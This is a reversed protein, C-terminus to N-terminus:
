KLSNYFDESSMKGKFNDFYFYVTNNNEIIHTRFRDNDLVNNELYEIEDNSLDWNINLKIEDNESISKKLPIIYIYPRPPMAFNSILCSMILKNHNLVPTINVLYEISTALIVERSFIDWVILIGGQNSAWTNFCFLYNDELFSVSMYDVYDSFSISEELTKEYKELNPVLNLEYDHELLFEYDLLNFDISAKVFDKWTYKDFIKNNEDYIIGILNEDDVSCYKM